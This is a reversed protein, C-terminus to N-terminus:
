AEKPRRLILRLMAAPTRVIGAAVRVGLQVPVMLGQFGRQVLRVAMTMPAPLSALREEAKEILRRRTEPAAAEKLMDIGDNVSRPIRVNMVPRGKEAEADLQRAMEEVVFGEHDKGIRKEEHARAEAREPQVEGIFQHHQTANRTFAAEKRTRKAM